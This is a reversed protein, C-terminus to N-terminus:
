FRSAITKEALKTAESPGEQVSWGDCDQMWHVQLLASNSCIGPGFNHYGHLWGLAMASCIEGDWEANSLGGIPQM